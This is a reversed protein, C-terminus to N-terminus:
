VKSRGARIAFLFHGMPLGHEHRLVRFDFLHDTYIERSKLFPADTFNPYLWGQSNGAPLAFMEFIAAECEHRGWKQSQYARVLDKAVPMEKSHLLVRILLRWTSQLKPNSGFWQTAYGLKGYIEPAIELDTRRQEQWLELRRQIASETASGKGGEEM